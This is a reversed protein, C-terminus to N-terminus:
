YPIPDSNIDIHLIDALWRGNIEKCIEEPTKGKHDIETGRLNEFREKEKDGLSILNCKINCKM